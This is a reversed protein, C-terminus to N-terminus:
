PKLRKFLLHTNDKDLEIYKNLMSRTFGSLNFDKHERLWKIQKEELYVNHMVVKTKNM